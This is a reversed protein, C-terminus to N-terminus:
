MPKLPLDDLAKLIFVHKEDSSLRDSNFNITMLFNRRTDMAHDNEKVPAKKEYVYDFIESEFKKAATPWLYRNAKIM